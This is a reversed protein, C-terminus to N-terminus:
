KRPGLSWVYAAVACIEEDSLNGGGRAPMPTPYEEPLPVGNRINRAISTYDGNIHIWLKDTLDPGLAGGTADAAHCNGCNGKGAYITKGQAIREVTPEDCVGLTSVPEDVSPTAPTATDARKTTAATDAPTATTDVTDAAPLTDIVEGTDIAPLTDAGPAVDISDHPVDDRVDEACGALLLLFLILLLPM